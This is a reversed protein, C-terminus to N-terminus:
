GCTILILLQVTTGLGVYYYHYTLGRVGIHGKSADDDM